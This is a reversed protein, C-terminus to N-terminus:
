KILTNRNEKRTAPVYSSSSSSSRTGRHNWYISNKENANTPHARNMHICFMQIRRLLKRSERQQARFVSFDWFSSFFVLELSSDLFQFSFRFIGFFRRARAWCFCIIQSACYDYLIEHRSLSLLFRQRFGLLIRLFNISRCLNRCTLSLTEQLFRDSDLMVNM